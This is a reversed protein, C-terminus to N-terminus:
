SYNCVLFRAYGRSIGSKQQKKSKKPNEASKLFTLSHATLSNGWVVVSRSGMDDGRGREARVSERSPLQRADARLQRRWMRARQSREVEVIGGDADASCAPVPRSACGSWKAACSATRKRLNSSARSELWTSAGGGPQTAASARPPSIDRLSYRRAGGETRQPVVLGLRDYQRLTQPHVNALEGAAGVSFVPLEIDFGVEAAGDLDARGAVIAMACMEYLRKIQRAARAQSAQSTRSSRAM